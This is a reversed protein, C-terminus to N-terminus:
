QCVGAGYTYLHELIGMQHAVLIGILYQINNEKLHLWMKLSGTVDVEDKAAEMSIV